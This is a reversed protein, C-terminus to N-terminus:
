EIYFVGTLAIQKDWQDKNQLKEYSQNLYWYLIISECYNWIRKQYKSGFKNNYIRDIIIEGNKNTVYLNVLKISKIVVPKAIDKLPNELYVHVIYHIKLTDDFENNYIILKNKVIHNTILDPIESGNITKTIFPIILFLTSIIIIKM